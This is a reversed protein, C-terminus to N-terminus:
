KNQTALLGEPTDRVWCPDGMAVTDWPHGHEPTAYGHASTWWSQVNGMM